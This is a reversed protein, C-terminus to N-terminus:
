PKNDSTEPTPEPLAESDPGDEAGDPEGDGPGEGGGSEGDDDELVEGCKPCFGDSAKVPAGCNSCYFIEEDESADLEPEPYKKLKEERAKQSWWFIMVLLFYLFIMVATEYLVMPLLAMYAGGFDANIPGPRPPTSINGQSGSTNIDFYYVGEQLTTAYYCNYTGNSVQVVNMEVTTINNGGSRQYNLYVSPTANSTYLKATFNYETGPSGRYPTVTAGMINGASGAPSNTPAQGQSLFIPAWSLSIVLFAILGMVLFKKVNRIGLYYPIAFTLVAMLVITFCTAATLLLLDIGITIMFIVPLAYKKEVFKQLSEKLAM